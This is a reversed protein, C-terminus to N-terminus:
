IWVCLYLIKTFLYNAIVIPNVPKRGLGYNCCSFDSYVLFYMLNVCTVPRSFTFWKHSSHPKLLGYLAFLM